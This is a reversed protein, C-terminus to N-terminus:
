DQCLPCFFWLLGLNESSVRKLEEVKEVREVMGIGRM